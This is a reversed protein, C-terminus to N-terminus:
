PSPSSGDPPSSPPPSSPPSSPLQGDETCTLDIVQNWHTDPTDQNPDEAAVFLNRTGPGEPLYHGIKFGVEVLHKGWADCTTQETPVAPVGLPPATGDVTVSVTAGRRVQTGATPKTSLVKIGVTGATQFILNVGLGKGRLLDRAQQFTVGEAAFDPIAILGSAPPSSPPPSPSSPPPSPSLSPSPSTSPGTVPRPAPTVAWGIAGGVVALAVFGAVAAFVQGVSTRSRAATTAAPTDRRPGSPQPPPTSTV